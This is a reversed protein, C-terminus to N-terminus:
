VRVITASLITARSRVPPLEGLKGPRAWHPVQNLPCQSVMYCSVEHTSVCEHVQGAMQVVGHALTQMTM